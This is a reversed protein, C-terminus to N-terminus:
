EPFYAFGLQALIEHLEVLPKEELNLMFVGGFINLAFSTGEPMDLYSVASIEPVPKYSKLIIVKNPTEEKKGSIFARATDFRSSCAHAQGKTLAVIGLAIKYLARHMLTYNYIDRSELTQNLRIQGNELPTEKIADKKDKVLLKIQRPHTKELTANGFEAKPLKGKKTFPVCWVRMMAIPPFEILTNDLPSLVNNNCNKCVLGKPLIWEDNGLSEPFIHEETSFDGTTTLCYVCRNEVKTSGKVFAKYADSQEVKHIIKLLKTALVFAMENYSYFTYQLLQGMVPISAIEKLRNLLEEEEAFYNGEAVLRYVKEATLVEDDCNVPMHGQNMKTIFSEIGDITEPAIDGAFNERLFKWVNAYYIPEQPNLFPRMLVVFRITENADPTEIKAQGSTQDFKMEFRFSGTRYMKPLMGKVRHYQRKFSRILSIM